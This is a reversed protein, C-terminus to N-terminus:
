SGADTLEDLKMAGGDHGRWNFQRIKMLRVYPKGPMKPDEEWRLEVIPFYLLLWQLKEDLQQGYKSFRPIFCFGGDLDDVPADIKYCWKNEKEPVDDAFYHARRLIVNFAQVEGKGDKGVKPQSLFQQLHADKFQVYAEWDTRLGESTEEVTMPFSGQNSETVVKFLYFQRESNPLTQKHEFTLEVIQEQKYPNVKYYADMKSRLSEGKLSHPVLKEWSPATLYAELFERPEDLIGDIGPISPEEELPELIPEDVLSPRTNNALHGNAPGLPLKEDVKAAPTSGPRADTVADGNGVDGSVQTTQPVENNAGGFKEMLTPMAFAGAAVLAALALGALLKGSFRKRGPDPTSSRREKVRQRKPAPTEPEPEPEPPAVDAPAEAQSTPAPAAPPASQPLRVDVPPAVEQPPPSAM